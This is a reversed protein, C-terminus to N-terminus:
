AICGRKTDDMVGDRHVYTGLAGCQQCEYQETYRGSGEVVETVMVMGGCSNCSMGTTM